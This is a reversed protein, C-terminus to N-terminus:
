DVLCSVRTVTTVDNGETYKWKGDTCVLLATVEGPMANSPGGTNNNFFMYTDGGLPSPPCVATMNSEGNPGIIYDRSTAGVTGTGSMPVFEVDGITCFVTQAPQYLCEVNTIITRTGGQTYTWQGNICVLTVTILSTATDM